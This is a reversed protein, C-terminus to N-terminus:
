TLSETYSMYREIVQLAIIFEFHLLCKSLSIADITADCSWGSPDNTISDFGQVILAM